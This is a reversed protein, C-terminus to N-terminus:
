GIPALRRMASTLKKKNSFTQSDMDLIKALELQTAELDEFKSKYLMRIEEARPHNAFAAPLWSRLSDIRIFHLSAQSFATGVRTRVLQHTCARSCFIMYSDVSHEIVSGHKSELINKLYTASGQRVRTVNPNLGVEYSNYCARGMLEVLTEAGTAADTKWDPVGIYSLYEQM